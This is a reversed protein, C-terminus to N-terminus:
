NNPTGTRSKPLQYTRSPPAAPPPAPNAIDIDNEEV